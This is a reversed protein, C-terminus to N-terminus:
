IQYHNRVRALDRTCAENANSEGYIKWWEITKSVADGQSFCPQWNLERQAKESSLDLLGAEHFENQTENFSPKLTSNWAECAIEAVTGVDLADDVPGFNYDSSARLEISRELAFLYGVL